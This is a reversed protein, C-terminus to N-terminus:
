WSNSSAAVRAKLKWYLMMERVLIQDGHRGCILWQKALLSLVKEAEWCVLPILLPFPEKQWPWCRGEFPENLSRCRFLLELQGMEFRRKWGFHWYQSWNPWVALIQGFSWDEAIVALQAPEKYAWSLLHNISEAAEWLMVPSRWFKDMWELYSPVLSTRRPSPVLKAILCIPEKAKRVGLLVKWKWNYECSDWKLEDSWWVCYHKEQVEGMKKGQSPCIWPPLVELLHTLSHRRCTELSRSPKEWEFFFNSIHVFPGWDIPPVFTKSVRRNFNNLM